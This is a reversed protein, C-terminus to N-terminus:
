KMYKHVFKQMDRWSQRSDELEPLCVAFDHPMLKYTIQEVKVGAKRAKKAVELSDDLLTEHEGTQILMPPLGKYDGYLPSLYAEKYDKGEAYRPHEIDGVLKTGAGLVPDKHMNASRSPLNNDMTAWPSILILAGPLPMKHDRLYLATALVLNGGASDGVMIINKAKHGRKLLEQFAAVGDELAAPYKYEPAIRYDLLYAPAYGAMESQVLALNRHGNGLAQVYGGGHFQLIVTDTTIKEPALLELKVNEVNLKEYTYGTPPVFPKIVPAVPTTPHFFGDMKKSIYATKAAGQLKLSPTDTWPAALGVPLGLSFAVLGAVIIKKWNFMNNKM